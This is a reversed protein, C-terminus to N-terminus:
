AREPRILGTIADHRMLLSLAEVLDFPEAQGAAVEGALAAADGLTDGRLLAAYFAAFGPPLLLVLVDLGHRLVLAAEAEHPDVTALDSFEDGQHAAWLSAVACASDLVAMSPHLVLRLQAVADFAALAAGVAEGSVPAADAAHYALVRARELRAVDALYPLTRAPEFGAIFVPLDDGYHVLLRSRPPQQRVFVSAMARFFDVGVLAQTVPFADALADILSSVVNNRHVALRALPAAGRGTGTGTHSGTHIGTPCPLSPELLAAAFEDHNM